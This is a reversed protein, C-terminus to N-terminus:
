PCEFDPDLDAYTGVLAVVADYENPHALEVYGAADDPEYFVTLMNSIIGLRPLVYQTFASEGIRRFAVCTPQPQSVTSSESLMANLDRSQPVGVSVVQIKGSM